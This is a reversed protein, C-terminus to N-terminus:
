NNFVDSMAKWKSAGAFWVFVLAEKPGVTSQVVIDDTDFNTGGYTLATVITKFVVMVQQGDSTGDDITITLAALTGAPEIAVASLLGSPVIAVTQGTTPAVARTSGHAIVIRADNGAAATTGSTGLWAPPLAGGGISSSVPKYDTLGSVDTATSEWFEKVKCFSHSSDVCPTYVLNGASASAAVLALMVTALFRKM